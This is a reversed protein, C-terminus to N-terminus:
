ARQRHEPEKSGPQIGAALPAMWQTALKSGLRFLQGAEDVYEKATEELWDKQMEAVEGVTKTNATGSRQAANFAVVTDHVAQTGKGSEILPFRVELEGQSKGEINKIAIKM